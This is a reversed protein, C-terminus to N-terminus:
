RPFLWAIPVPVARSAALSDWSVTQKVSGETELNQLFAREQRYAVVVVYGNVTIIRASPGNARRELRELLRDSGCDGTVRDIDSAPRVGFIVRRHITDLIGASCILHM